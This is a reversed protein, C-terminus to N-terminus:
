WPPYRELDPGFEEPTPAEEDWLSGFQRALDDAVTGILEAAELDALWESPLAAEGFRAGLLNGCIAGTSDSDGSHNVALLVGARFSEEPSAGTRHSEEAVLACALAIALAEEAIWGGGLVTEIREPTPAAGSSRVEGGLDVASRIAALTEDAAEWDSLEAVATAIAARLPAGVCLESIIAALAGAALRGTPHGHTLGAFDAAMEFPNWDIPFALGVPAVRMVGGCGKSANRAPVLPDRPLAKLGMLCTNGPAREAHLVDHGVLWGSAVKGFGKAEVGNEGEAPIGQTHLWRLHADTLPVLPDCDGERWAQNDARILGEAVFLTMQTDDTFRGERRGWSPIFRTVGDPGYKERIAEIPDFEVGAGLQDGIAGGLLAGRVRAAYKTSM